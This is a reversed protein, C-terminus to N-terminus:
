RPLDAAFVALFRHVQGAVRTFNGGIVVGRDTVAITRVGWDSNTSPAFGREVAGTGADLARVRSDPDDTAGGAFGMWLTGDHYRVTHVDGTVEHRFVLRGTATSWALASDYGGGVGAYLLSGDPSIDLARVTADVPGSFRLPKVTGTAGSVLAARARVEGNVGRFNGAIYVDNGTGNPPAVVARVNVDVTPTFGGPVAGSTANVKALHAQARTGVTTFLGGVYLLGHDLELARVTDDVGVDFRRDLAGTTADLRALRGRPVGDVATFEGGAWISRGDTELAWVTGDARPSWAVPEGTSVRFAALGSRPLLAGTPSVAHASRGGLYVTDGVATSAYVPGDVMWTREPRPDTHVAAGAPPLAPVSLACVAAAVLARRVSRHIRPM